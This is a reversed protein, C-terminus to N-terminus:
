TVIVIEAKEDIKWGRSTHRLLYAKCSTSVVVTGDEHPSYGYIKCDPHAAHVVDRIAYADERAMGITWASDEITGCGALLLVAFSSSVLRASTM